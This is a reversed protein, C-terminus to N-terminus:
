LKRRKIEKTIFNLERSMDGTISTNERARRILYPIVEDLPGYPLYKAVNYGSQALNFTINDSMGFLQCFNLHPHSKDIGKEEILQAQFLNSEVNHSACVSAMMKYNEVAFALADNYCRDTAEKNTNIVSSINNEKAYNREKEMYAGRVLKAGIRYGNDQGKQFATKLDDLKDHRYLQYTNYVIVNNKNYEQMMQDVISDISIQMWSEEADIMVGVKLDHAKKCINDIRLHLKERQELEAISLPKDSQMKVLLENPALGTLKTSIAPVSNNSAALEIANITELMVADLEDDKTKSEAGYDLITLTNYKYLLDINKQTDMLSEGGVFQKFITAKIASRVFPLKLKLALPSFLSGMKVLGANNMLSFLWRLRKLESDSKYSFAIETNDFNLFSEPESDM